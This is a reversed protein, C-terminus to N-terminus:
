SVSLGLREKLRVPITSDFGVQRAGLREIDAILAAVMECGDRTAVAQRPTRGDLAPLATDFDQDGLIAACPANTISLELAKRM